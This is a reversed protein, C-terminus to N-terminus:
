HLECIVGAIDHGCFVEDISDAAVNGLLVFQTVDEVSFNLAQPQFMAVRFLHELTSQFLTHVDMHSEDSHMLEGIIHVPQKTGQLRGKQIMALHDHLFMFASLIPDKTPMLEKASVTISAIDWEVKAGLM